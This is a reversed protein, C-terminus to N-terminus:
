GSLSGRFPIRWARNDSKSIIDGIEYMDIGYDTYYPEGPNSAILILWHFRATGTYDNVLVKAALPTLGHVHVGGKFYSIGLTRSSSIRQM